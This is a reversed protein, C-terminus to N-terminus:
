PQLGGGVGGAGKPGALIIKQGKKHSYEPRVGGPDKLSAQDWRNGCRGRTAGRGGGVGGGCGSVRSPAGDKSGSSGVAARPQVQVAHGMSGAAAVPPPPM